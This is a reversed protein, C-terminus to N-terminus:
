AADRDARYTYVGYYYGGSADSRLDTDNLVVGAIRGGVSKIQSMVVAARARLTKQARVVMVAGDVQPGIVLADTVAGVPPTDIVVRDFKVRAAAILEIFKQSHLLESPNPPLPGCPLLSLNKIGSDLVADDLTAENVLVSTIGVPPRVKFIRHIRPRRMDADILLVSKGSQALTLALSTAVTTKGERPSASVVMLAKFPNDPSMFLLNTRIVRCAEAVASNPHTNVVLDPDEIPGSEGPASPGYRYRYRVGGRRIRPFIGLFTAKLEEEVDAPSRVTRDAQIVVIASLVGFVLGALIGLAVNLAVKPKIPRAPLLANDLIRVNNVHSLRTLDVEKTRELIIGYLKSNNERERALRGYQIERLNLDLAEQQAQALTGRLDREVHQASRLEAEAAGLINRSEHEIADVLERLRTDVALMQGSQAGYRVALGDHERRTEEYRARLGQLVSSALLEPAQQVLPDHSQVARRLEAVRASIFIRQTLSETLSNSLKEIRNTIHNRRDEYSVSLLNNARRYEYLTLESAELQGRLTELQQGLWEVASVTTSLKQELNQRIYVLAITNALLQARRPSIDEVFVNVLRSDRIPEIVIRGRLVGAATEVPVSRFTSRSGPAVGLFDADHQLGLQRVVAEAVRESKLVNHQTVYYERTMWYNSNASDIGEVHRGLPQPPNPDFELSVSAAYIKPQRLTWLSVAVATACAVAIVLTRYKWVQQVQALMAAGPLQAAPDAARPEENPRNM